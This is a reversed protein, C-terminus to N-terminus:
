PSVVYKSRRSSTEVSDVVCPGGLAAGDALEIGLRSPLIIPQDKFYVRYHPVADTDQHRQLILEIRVQGGPADVRVLPAGATDASTTPAGFASLIVLLSSISIRNM